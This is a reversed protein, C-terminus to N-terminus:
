VPYTEAEQIDEKIEMQTKQLLLEAEGRGSLHM